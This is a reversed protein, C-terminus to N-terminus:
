CRLSFVGGGQSYALMPNLGAAKQDAVARQYSTNSMREQFAMQQSSQAAQFDMQKQAQEANAANTQAQGYAGIAAPGVSQGVRQLMGGWDISPSGSSYQGEEGPAPPGMPDSGGGIVNGLVGGIASLGKSVMPGVGPIFSAAIPLAIPAIKKLGSGIKKFFSGLGM